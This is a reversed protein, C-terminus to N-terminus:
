TFKEVISAIIAIFGYGESCIEPDVRLRDELCLEFCINNVFPSQLTRSM